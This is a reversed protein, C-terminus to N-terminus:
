VEIMEIPFPELPDDIEMIHWLSFEYTEGVPIDPTLVTHRPQWSVSAGRFTPTCCHSDRKQRQSSQQDEDAIVEALIGVEHPAADHVPERSAMTGSKGYVRISLQYESDEIGLAGVQNRVRQRCSEIYDDIISILGPDRAGAIFVTRYGSRRMGELKVTYPETNM